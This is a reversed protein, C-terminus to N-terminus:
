IRFLQSTSGIYPAHIKTNGPRTLHSRLFFVPLLLLIMGLSSRTTSCLRSKTLEQEPGLDRAEENKM